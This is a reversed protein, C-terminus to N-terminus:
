RRVARGQRCKRDARFIVTNDRNRQRTPLRRHRHHHDGGSPANRGWAFSTQWNGKAGGAGIPRNWTISATTRRVDVEPDLLEPSKLFGHSVQMSLNATPNWTARVSWSDFRPREIDYRHQDPERGRFLSAEIKWRRYVLGATAVGFTVHTSDLWHHAIPAEPNALGSARHM